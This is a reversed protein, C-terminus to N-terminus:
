LGLDGVCSVLDCIIDLLKADHHIDNFLPHITSPLHVHKLRTKSSTDEWELDFIGDSKTM